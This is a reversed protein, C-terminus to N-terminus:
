GGSSSCFSADTVTIGVSFNSSHLRPLLPLFVSLHLANGCSQRMFLLRVVTSMKSTHTSEFFAEPGVMGFNDIDVKIKTFTKDEVDEFQGYQGSPTGRFSNSFSSSFNKLSDTSPTWSQARTLFSSM